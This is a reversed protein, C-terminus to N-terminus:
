ESEIGPISCEFTRENWVWKRCGGPLKAVKAQWIRGYTRAIFRIRRCCFINKPKLSKLKPAERWVASESQRQTSGRANKTRNVLQQLTCFVTVDTYNPVPCTRGCGKVTDISMENLFTFSPTSFYKVTQRVYKDSHGIKQRTVLPNVNVSASVFIRLVAQFWM